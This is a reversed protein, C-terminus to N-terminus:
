NEVLGFLQLHFRLQSFPLNALFVSITIARFELSSILKTGQQTLSFETRLTVKCRRPNEASNSM